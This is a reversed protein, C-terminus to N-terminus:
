DLLMPLVQEELRRRLEDRSHPRLLERARAANRGREDDSLALAVELAGALAAASVEMAALRPDIARALALAPYPGGAPLTVLTTGAGLAELPALGYDEHRSASVFVSASEVLERFRLPTVVGPWEVTDPEAVGSRALYRRGAEPDIGTVLLRWGPPAAKAWAAAALDLGKKRPNGAYLVATRERATWPRESVDVGIPLAVMPPDLRLVQAEASPEVGHPLLLRVRGLSRRELAHLLGAGFGTRNTAAPEDFRVATAGALRRRPQLM